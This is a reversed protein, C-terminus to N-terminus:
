FMENPGKATIAKWQQRDRQKECEAATPVLLILVLVHGNWRGLAIESNGEHRLM